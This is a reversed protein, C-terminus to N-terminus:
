RRELCSSLRMGCDLGEMAGLLRTWIRALMKSLPPHDIKGRYVAFDSKLHVARRKLTGRNDAGWNRRFSFDLGCSAIWQVLFQADGDCATSGGPSELKLDQTCLDAYVMLLLHRKDIIYISKVQRYLSGPVSRVKQEILRQDREQPEGFRRALSKQPRGSRSNCGARASLAAVKPTTSM